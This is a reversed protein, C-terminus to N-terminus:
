LIQSMRNKSNKYFSCKTTGQLSTFLRWTLFLLVLASFVIQKEKSLLSSIAWLPFQCVCDTVAHLNNNLGIHFLTLQRTRKGTMWWAIKNRQSPIQQLRKTGRPENNLIVPCKWKCCDHKGSHRIVDTANLLWQLYSLQGHLWAAARLSRM